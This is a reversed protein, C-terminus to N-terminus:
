NGALEKKENVSIYKLMLGRIKLVMQAFLQQREPNIEDKSTAGQLEMFKSLLQLFIALHKLLARANLNELGKPTLVKNILSAIQLSKSLEDGDIAEIISQVQEAFPKLTQQNTVGAVKEIMSLMFQCHSDFQGEAIVQSIDVSLQELYGLMISYAQTKEETSSESNLNTFYTEIDGYKKGLQGLEETQKEIEEALMPDLDVADPEVKAEAVEISDPSHTAPQLEVEAVEAPQNDSLDLDPIEEEGIEPSAVREEDVLELETQAQAQPLVPSGDIVKRADPGQGTM